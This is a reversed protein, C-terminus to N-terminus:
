LVCTHLYVWSSPLFPEPPDKFASCAAGQRHRTTFMIVKQVRTKVVYKDKERIWNHLFVHSSSDKHLRNYQQLNYYSVIVVSIFYVELNNIYKTPKCAATLTILMGERVTQGHGDDMTEASVSTEATDDVAM